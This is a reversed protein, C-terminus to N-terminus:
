WRFQFTLYGPGDNGTNDIGSRIYWFDITEQRLTNTCTQRCAIWTGGPLRVERRGQANVRVPATITAPGYRSEATVYGFKPEELWHRSGAEAPAVMGGIAPVAVAFLLVFPARM